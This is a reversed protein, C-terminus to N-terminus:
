EAKALKKMQSRLKARASLYDLIHGDAKENRIPRDLLNKAKMRIGYPVTENGSLASLVERSLPRDFIETGYVKAVMPAEWVSPTGEPLDPMLDRYLVEGAANLFPHIDEGSERYVEYALASAPPVGVSDACVARIFGEESEFAGMMNEDCAAEVFGEAFLAEARKQKLKNTQQNTPVKDLLTIVDRFLGQALLTNLRANLYDESRKELNKIGGVDAMLIHRLIGREEDNFSITACDNIQRIVEDANPNEGWIEAANETEIGITGVSLAALETQSVEAKVTAVAMGLLFVGIFKNKGMFM